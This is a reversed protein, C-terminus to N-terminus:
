RGFVKRIFVHHKFYFVSLLVLSQMKVRRELFEFDFFSNIAKKNDNNAEKQTAVGCSDHLSM